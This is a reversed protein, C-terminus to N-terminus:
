LEQAHTRNRAAVEDSSSGATGFFAHRSMDPSYRSAAPKRGWAEAMARVHHPAGGCCVGLYRAGLERAASAFAGIEYRNCTFPDLATPFPRDGPICDCASDHLSQFTPHTEDTRYPVPLAAVHCSVAQRLESLLGFMTAPGRMCNLGVCVAGQQELKKAADLLPVGDWLTPDRHASLTVVGPLGHAQIIELAVAAEGHYDNTESVIYDAGAEAAWGIQEEFMARVDRQAQADDPSWHNTNCVNGALLCGYEDAVTKALKLAERNLPELLHEKGVLRMKERHGYYTFALIVDSGAHAFERHLNQVAEPHELVVEPVFPGAQVYGRRELEFLYGEACIVGEADLREKLGRAATM